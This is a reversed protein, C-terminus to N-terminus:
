SMQHTYFTRAADRFSGTGFYGLMKEHVTRTWDSEKRGEKKREEKKTPSPTCFRPTIEGVCIQQLNKKKKKRRLDRDKSKGLNEM